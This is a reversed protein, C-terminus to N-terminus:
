ECDNSLPRQQSETYSDRDDDGDDDPDDPETDCVWGGGSKPVCYAHGQSRAQQEDTGPDVDCGVTCKTQTGCGYAPSMMECGVANKNAGGAKTCDSPYQDKNSNLAVSGSPCALVPYSYDDDYIETRTVTCPIDTCLTQRCTSYEVTSSCPPPPDASGGRLQDTLFAPEVKFALAWGLLSLSNLMAALVATARISRVLM